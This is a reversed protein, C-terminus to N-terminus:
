LVPVLPVTASPGFKTVMTVVQSGSLGYDVEFPQLNCMPKPDRAQQPLCPNPFM